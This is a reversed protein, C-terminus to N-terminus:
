LDEVGHYDLGRAETNKVVPLLEREQAAQGFRPAKDDQRVAVARAKDDPVEQLAGDVGREHLLRIDRIDCAALAALAGRGLLALQADLAHLRLHEDLGQAARARGQAPLLGRVTGSANCLG